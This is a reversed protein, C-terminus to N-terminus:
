SLDTTYGNSNMCKIDNEGIKSTRQIPIYPNERPNLDMIDYEERM